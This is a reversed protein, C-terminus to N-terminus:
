IRWLFMALNAVDILSKRDRKVIAQAANRLLRNPVDDEDDEWEIAQWGHWGQHSKSKLRKKMASAFEDVADNLEKLEGM